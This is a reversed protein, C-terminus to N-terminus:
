QCQKNAWNFFVRNIFLRFEEQTMDSKAYNCSKCCPVINGHVYGMDNNVRDIGNFIYTSNIKIDEHYKAKFNGSKRWPKEGCYYCDKSTIEKVEDMSLTFDLGREKASNRYRYFVLKLGSFGKPTKAKPYSCGCSRPSKFKFKPGIVEITKGCDCQCLWKSLRKGNKSPPTGLYKIVTLAGLKVGLLNLKKHNEKEGYLTRM